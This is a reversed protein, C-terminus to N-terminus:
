ESPTDELKDAEYLNLTRFEALMRPVSFAAVDVQDLAMRRRMGDPSGEGEVDDHKRVLGVIRRPTGDASLFRELQPFCCRFKYALIASAPSDALLRDGPACYRNCSSSSRM